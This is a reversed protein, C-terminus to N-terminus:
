LELTAYENVIKAVDGATFEYTMYRVVHQSDILYCRPVYMTAYQYYIAKESDEAMDIFYGNKNRYERLEEADGERAIAIIAPLSVEADLSAHLEDLLAKCDPCLPSFLILLSPENVPLTLIQNDISQVEFQPAIDGVKVISAEDYTPLGESITDCGMFGMTCLMAICWIALRTDRVRKVM